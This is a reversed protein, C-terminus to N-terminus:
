ADLVIGEELISEILVNGQEQMTQFESPTYVLVDIATKLDLIKLVKRIRSFFDDDTEKIIVLDIDSLEDSENRAFSGFFIVRDPNYPSLRTLVDRAMRQREPTLSRHPMPLSLIGNVASPASPASLIM